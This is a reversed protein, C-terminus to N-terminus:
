KPQTTKLNQKNVLDLRKDTRNLPMTWHSFLRPMHPIRPYTKGEDVIGGFKKEFKEKSGLGKLFITL